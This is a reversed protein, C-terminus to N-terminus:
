KAEVYYLKEVVRDAKYQRTEHDSDARYRAYDLEYTRFTEARGRTCFIRGIDDEPIIGESNYSLLIHRTDAHELLDALAAVCGARTSWSSKKDQDPILGTKGRIEPEGEFWGRAILEPVHYYSSYQRTNYPPDLYLLDIRGIDRIVDNVDGQIAVSRQDSSPVVEPAGLRLPKRANAQWSKVYAAYVGTTNAVADAGELLSALLYFYEDDDLLGSVRWEHIKTRVADIRSANELTFFM